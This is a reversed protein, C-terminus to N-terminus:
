QGVIYRTVVITALAHYHLDFTAVNLFVGTTAHGILSVQMMTSLDSTWRLDPYRKSLRHSALVNSYASQAPKRLTEATMGHAMEMFGDIGNQRLLAIKVQAFHEDHIVAAVIPLRQGGGGRCDNRLMLTDIKLLPGFQKLHDVRM